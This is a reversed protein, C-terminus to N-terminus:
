CTLGRGERECLDVGLQISVENKELPPHVAPKGAHGERAPGM